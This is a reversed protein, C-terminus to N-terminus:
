WALVQKKDRGIEAPPFNPPRKRPQPHVFSLSTQQGSYSQVQKTFIIKINDQSRYNQTNVSDHRKKM